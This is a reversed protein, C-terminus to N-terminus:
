DPLLADILANCGFLFAQENNAAVRADTKAAADFAPVGVSSYRQRRIGVSDPAGLLDFVTAGLTYSEIAQYRVLLEDGTLGFAELAAIARRMLEGGHPMLGDSSLLLLAVNPHQMIVARSRLLIGLVRERPPSELDEPEAVIEAFLLDMVGTLLANRNPFYRYIATPHVDLRAGLSRVTLAEFGADDVIALAARAFEEHSHRAPRGAMGGGYGAEVTPIAGRCCNILM